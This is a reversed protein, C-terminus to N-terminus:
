QAPTTNLVKVSNDAFKLVVKNGQTTSFYLTAGTSPATVSADTRPLFRLGGLAAQVAVAVVSLRIVYTTSGDVVCTIVYEGAVDPTFRPAADTTSDLSSLAAVSGAPVSQGWSYSTGTPTTALTIQEATVYGSEVDNPSTDGSVMTKSISSALIGAM